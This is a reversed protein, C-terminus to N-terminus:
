NSNIKYLINIEDALEKCAIITRTVESYKPMTLLQIELITIYQEIATKNSDFLIDTITM